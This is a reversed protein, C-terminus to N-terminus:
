HTYIQLKLLLFQVLYTVTCLMSLDSFVPELSFVLCIWFMKGQRKVYCNFLFFVRM